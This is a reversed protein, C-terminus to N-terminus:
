EITIHKIQSKPTTTKLTRLGKQMNRINEESRQDLIKKGKKSEGGRKISFKRKQKRESKSQSSEKKEKKSEGM